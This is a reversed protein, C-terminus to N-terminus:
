DVFLKYKKILENENYTEIFKYDYFNIYRLIKYKNLKNFNNDKYM